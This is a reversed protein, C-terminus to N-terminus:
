CLSLSSASPSRSFVVNFIDTVWVLLLPPLGLPWLFQSSVLLLNGYASSEPDALSWSKGDRLACVYKGKSDLTLAPLGGHGM